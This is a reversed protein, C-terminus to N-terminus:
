PRAAEEVIVAEEIAAAAALRAPRLRCGSDSPRAGRGSRRRGANSRATQRHAPRVRGAAGQIRRREDEQGPRRVTAILQYRPRKRRSRPRVKVIVSRISNFVDDDDLKDQYLKSLSMFKAVTKASTINLCGICHAYNRWHEVVSGPWVATLSRHLAILWEGHAASVDVFLCRFSWFLPSSRWRAADSDDGPGFSAFQGMIM